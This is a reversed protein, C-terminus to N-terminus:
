LSNVYALLAARAQPSLGAFRDRAYRGQGDHARIAADITTARGDHLLALRSAIGWLPATRMQRGTSVGQVIGDGLSGMDHLLFDSFPRLAKRSLAAIPSPGTALVPTHCNACGIAVFVAGGAAVQPTVAGRPPPALMTMFDTFQRVGTGDDNLGPAPNQALVQCDGQPCNEDPFEPNTIGMENLYADGSFQFLTPVQAKWGFRGVRTRGTLIETVLNPTGATRPSVTAELRALALLEQDPVADVLGLGFLPTTIRQATITATAPVVEPSFPAGISHDQILSGGLATMPDFMGNTTTGFRTEKRGTTGGVPMAHCTACSAENFVPGLGDAVTEVAEFEERGAAFRALEDATLSAFPAGLTTAVSAELLGAIGSDPLPPNMVVDRPAECAALWFVVISTLACCTSRPLSMRM